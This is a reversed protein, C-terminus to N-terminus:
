VPRWLDEKTYIRKDIIIENFPKNPSNTKKIFKRGTALKKETKSWNVIVFGKITTM